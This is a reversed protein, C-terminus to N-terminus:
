KEVSACMDKLQKESMESAIRAAEESKSAPTLGQKISLALCFLRRQKESTSPSM